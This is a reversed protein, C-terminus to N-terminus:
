IDAGMADAGRQSLMGPHSHTHTRTYNPPRVATEATLVTPARLVSFRNMALSTEQIDARITKVVRVKPYGLRTLLVSDAGLCYGLLM